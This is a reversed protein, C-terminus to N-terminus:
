EVGLYSCILKTIRDNPDDHELDLRELVAMAARAVWEVDDDAATIKRHLLDKLIRGALATIACYADHAAPDVTMLTVLPRHVRGFNVAGKTWGGIISHATATQWTPRRGWEEMVRTSNRTFREYVAVAIGRKDRFRGYVAGTTLDARRAIEALTIDAYQSEQLLEDFADLLRDHTTRSRNQKAAIAHASGIGVEAPEAPARRLAHLDGTDIM